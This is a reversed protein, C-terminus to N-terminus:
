GPRAGTQIQYGMKHRIGEAPTGNSAQIALFHRVLIDDERPTADVINM